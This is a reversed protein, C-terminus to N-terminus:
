LRGFRWVALPLGALHKPRDSSHRLSLPSRPSAGQHVRVDRVQSSKAVYLPPLLRNRSAYSEGSQVGTRAEQTRMVEVCPMQSGWSWGPPPGRRKARPWPSGKASEKLSSLMRSARLSCPMLYRSRTKLGTVVMQPKRLWTRLSSWLQRSATDLIMAWRATAPRLTHEGLM